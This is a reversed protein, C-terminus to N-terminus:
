VKCSNFPQHQTFVEVPVVQHEAPGFVMTSLKWLHSVAPQLSPRAVLLARVSGHSHIAVEADANENGLETASGDIFVVNKLRRFFYASVRTATAVAIIETVCVNLMAATLLKVVYLPTLDVEQNLQGVCGELVISVLVGAVGVCHFLVGVLTVSHPNSLSCDAGRWTFHNLRAFSMILFGVLAVAMGFVSMAFTYSSLLQAAAVSFHSASDYYTSM